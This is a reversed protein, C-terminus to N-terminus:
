MSALTLVLALSAFPRNPVMTGCVCLVCALTFGREMWNPKLAIQYGATDEEERRGERGGRLLFGGGGACPGSEPDLIGRLTVIGRGFFGEVSCAEEVGTKGVDAEIEGAGEVHQVAVLGREVYDAAGEFAGGLVRLKM